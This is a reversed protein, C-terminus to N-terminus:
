LVNAQAYPSPCKDRRKSRNEGGDIWNNRARFQFRALAPDAKIAAVTDFVGAVSLGNMAEPVKMAASQACM